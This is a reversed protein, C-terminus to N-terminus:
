LCPGGALISLFSTVDLTDPFLGDNNFDLDGCTGTSCPGGQFVSILDELDLTDPFLGDHNFDITDCIQPVSNPDAPNSGAVLETRDFVGDQDRDVGLRNAAAPSPVFTYTLESGAGALARLLPEAISEGNRDSQMIGNTLRMWGRNEGNVRGKVILGLRSLSVQGMLLNFRALLTPDSNNAGNFTIQQGVGAHSDQSSPGPAHLPNNVAGLPLDSGSFCLMFATLDAVEQDSTVTFVPEAVFREVSDVSGDHLYGFGSTNDLQTTNFGTKEQMNRTQPIKMTVNTVGDAAVCGLHREGNPGPAIPSYTQTIPSLTFDPGMGTPMTHCTVCSITGNDLRRTTGYITLGNQPNGNPLPQGVNGFRGTRFHGPLPLTSPLTNDLNRSPNPPFTITALFSEFEQMDTASLPQDDGQLFQFAGAFAEIGSRDGRWHHPEHGIIDQLTQTTM